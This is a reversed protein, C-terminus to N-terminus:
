VGSYVRERCSARGLESLRLARAGATKNEGRFGTLACVRYLVRLVQLPGVVPGPEELVISMDADVAHPRPDSVLGLDLDPVDLVSQQEGVAREERLQRLECELVLTRAAPGQRDHMRTNVARVPLPESPCTALDGDILLLVWAQRVKTFAYRLVNM